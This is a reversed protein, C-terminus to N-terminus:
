NSTLQSVATPQSLGSYSGDAGFVAITVTSRRKLAVADFKALVDTDSKAEMDLQLPAKLEVSATSDAALGHLANKSAAPVFLDVSPKDSLNYFYLRSKAPDDPPTDEFLKTSGSNTIALTYFSGPKLILVQEVALGKASTEGAKVMAYSSVKHNLVKLEQGQVDLAVPSTDTAGNLVRIFAADPPPPADYLGDDAALGTTATAAIGAAIIVGKFISLKM